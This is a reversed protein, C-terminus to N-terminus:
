SAEGSSSKFLSVLKQWLTQKEPIFCQPLSTKLFDLLIANFEEPKEMQPVHGCRSIMFLGAQPILEQFKKAYFSPVLRDHSGWVIRTPVQIAPLLEKLPSQVMARTSKELAHCYLSYDERVAMEKQEQIFRLAGPCSPNYFVNVAFIDAMYKLLKGIHKQHFTMQVVLDELLNLENLGSGDLILLGQLSEPYRAAFYSAIHAGMSNGVLVPKEKLKLSQIFDLVFRAYYPISYEIAPKESRGYGPLDLGIVELGLPAFFRYSDRWHELSGGLGHIFILPFGRGERRYRVAIGDITLYADPNM